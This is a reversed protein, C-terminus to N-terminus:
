SSSLKEKFQNLKNTVEEILQKVNNIDPKEKQAEAILPYLSEEINEYAGANRKEVKKEIPEWSESLAKGEKNIKEVDNPSSKVTEKLEQLSTLVKEIGEKLSAANDQKVNKNVVKGTEHEIEKNQETDRNTSEGENDDSACASLMVATILFVSLFLLKSKKM